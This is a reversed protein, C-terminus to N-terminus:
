CGSGLHPCSSDQKLVTCVPSTMSCPSLSPRFVYFPPLASISCSPGQVPLLPSPRSCSYCLPNTKCLLFLSSMSCSGCKGQSNPPSIVALVSLQAKNLPSCFHSLPRSYDGLPIPIPSSVLFVFVLQHSNQPGLFIFEVFKGHPNGM